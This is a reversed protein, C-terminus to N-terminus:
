DLRGRHFSAVGVEAWTDHGDVISIAIGPVHWRELTDAVFKGFEATFPTAKDGAGGLPKQSAPPTSSLAGAAPWLAWLSFAVFRRHQLLM